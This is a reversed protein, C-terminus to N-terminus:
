ARFAYGELFDHGEILRAVRDVHADSWAVAHRSQSSSRFLIGACAQLYDDPADLGLFACLRSLERSPDQVLDEHRITAIRGPALRGRLRSLMACNEFYRATADDFTRGGRLIMTSINDYPNRVVQILQLEAPRVKDEIRSLLRDDADLARITEGATSDGVVRLREYRGQWQGPVFYSYVQGGRGLKRRGTDAQRRARDISLYFLQDRSFGRRAYRVADLEDSIVSHRHADLLAGVISHGSRAHGVFLCYREVAALDDRLRRSGRASQVFRWATHL